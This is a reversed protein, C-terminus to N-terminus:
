GARERQMLEASTLTPDVAGARGGFWGALGGLLLALTALLAARSGTKVAADAASTAQQKAREATERYQAEYEAVRQRAQEPPINQAKAIADAAKERAQEAQAQDGTLLGRVSAIATDKLAQPDNGGTSSRIQQEIAELPSSGPAGASQMMTSALNSTGGAISSVAGIAGGLLSGAATTALYVIVLTTAAWTTLGHWASTSEKPRGCLRGAAYGGALAAIIGSVTWWAAAATSFTRAAPNDGTGPDLTALGVGVGALNLLVHTVLSIVVGAAVAGWAVRNLVVTRVDESPTIPSYHPADTNGAARPTPARTTM